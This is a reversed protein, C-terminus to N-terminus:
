QGIFGKKFIQQMESTYQGDNHYIVLTTIKQVGPRGARIGEVVVLKAPEGKRSFIIHLNKPEISKKRMQFLLDTIREAPYILIFKGGIRLVNHVTTILKSLDMALEHRAVAKQTNPNIRGSQKPRYPPNSIVYDVAGGLKATSLECLDQCLVSIREQMGNKEINLSALSALNSQLEVGTIHIDSIKCALIIPIIGCGTGLDLVNAGVSPSAIGALIISDISFRYGNAPQLVQIKGNFFSDSTVQDFNKINLNM